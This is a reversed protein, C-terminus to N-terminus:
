CNYSVLITTYTHDAVYNFFVWDVGGISKQGAADGVFMSISHFWESLVDPNVLDDALLEYSASWKGVTTSAWQGTKKIQQALVNELDSVSQSDFKADCFGGGGVFTTCCHTAIGSEQCVTTSRTLRDFGTELSPSISSPYHSVPARIVLGHPM